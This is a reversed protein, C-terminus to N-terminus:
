NEARQDDQRLRRAKKKVVIQPQSSRGRPYNRSKKGEEELKILEEELKLLDEMEELDVDTRPPPKPKQMKSELRILKILEEELKLLDEMEELDVYTRQSQLSMTKIGRILEEEMEEIDVDTKQSQLVDQSYRAAAM